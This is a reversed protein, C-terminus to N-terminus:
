QKECSEKKIQLIEDKNSNYYNMSISDARTKEPDIKINSFLKEAEIIYECSSNKDNIKSYIKAAILFGEFYGKGFETKLYEDIKNKAKYIENKFLYITAYHRLEDDLRVENKNSLLVKLAEDYKKISIYTNALNSYGIPEEPFKKIQLKLIEISKDIQNDYKYLLSLRNLIANEKSSDLLLLENYGNIAKDYIGNEEFSVVSLSLIIPYIKSKKNTNNLTSDIYKLYKESNTIDKKKFLEIVTKKENNDLEEFINVIESTQSFSFLSILLFTIQIINKM